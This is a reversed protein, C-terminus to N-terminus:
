RSEEEKRTDQLIITLSITKNSYYPRQFIDMVCCIRKAASPVLTILLLLLLLLVFTCGILILLVPSPLEALFVLFNM